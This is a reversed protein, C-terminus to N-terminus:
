NGNSASGVIEYVEQLMNKTAESEAGLKTQMADLGTLVQSIEDKGPVSIATDFRGDSINGFAVLAQDLPGTISRSILYGLGILGVLSIGLLAFSIMRTNEYRVKGQEYETKAIQVQLDVLQSVKESIPDIVQYLENITYDAIEEADQSHMIAKLGIISDNAKNMLPIAQDVLVREQGVISTALYKKWAVDIVKDAQEINELGQTWTLNGNRTKHATDVINVAYMDAVSKLDGLPVVRDAYVTELSAQTQGLGIIGLAGLSIAVLLAISILGYLRMGINLKQFM